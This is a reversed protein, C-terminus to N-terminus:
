FGNHQLLASRFSAYDEFGLSSTIRGQWHEKLKIRIEPTIAASKQGAVNRRVKSAQGGPPLRCIKDLAAQTAHEDFQQGNERMFDHSSLELTLELLDDTLEIGEMRSVDAVISKIKPQMDEYCYMLVKEHDRWPWWSTLHHWYNFSGETEFLLADAFEDLGITGPEFFWGEMFHYYSLLVDAPDRFLVIYNAGGPVEDAALHCKYLRPKLKSANLDIGMDHAVEMWPVVVSIEDFSMDGHTGLCHAIQQMWTTGSKAFTAIIVDSPNTKFAQWHATAEPTYFRNSQELMDNLNTPRTFQRQKKTM